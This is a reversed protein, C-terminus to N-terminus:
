SVTEQAPPKPTEEKKEEKKEDKEDAESKEEQLAGVVVQAQVESLGAKQLQALQKRDAIAKKRAVEADRKAVEADKKEQALTRERLSKEPNALLLKGFLPGILPIQELKGAKLLKQGWNELSTFIASMAFSFYRVGKKAVFGLGETASSGTRALRQKVKDKTSMPVEENGEASKASETEVNKETQSVPAEEEKVVSKGREKLEASLHAAKEASAIRDVELAEACQARRLEEEATTQPTPEASVREAEPSTGMEPTYSSERKFESM